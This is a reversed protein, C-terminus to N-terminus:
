EGGSRDTAVVHVGSPGAEGRCRQPFFTFFSFSFSSSCPMLTCFQHHEDWLRVARAASGRELATESLFLFQDRRLEWLRQVAQPKALHCEKPLGLAAAFNDNLSLNDTPHLGFPLLAHSLCIGPFPLRHFGM